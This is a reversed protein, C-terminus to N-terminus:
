KTWKLYASALFFSHAVYLKALKQIREEMEKHSFQPKSIVDNFDEFNKFAAREVELDDSDYGRDLYRKSSGNLRVNEQGNRNVIRKLGNDRRGIGRDMIKYSAVIKDGGPAKGQTNYDRQRSSSVKEGSIKSSYLEHTVGREIVSGRSSNLNSKAINNSTRGSRSKGQSKSVSCEDSEPGLSHSKHKLLRDERVNEVFNSGKGDHENKFGKIPKGRVKSRSSGERSAEFGDDKEHGKEGVRQFKKDGEGGEMRLKRSVGKERIKYKQTTAASGGHEKGRVTRASEMAKLYEDFSPKFELDKPLLAESVLGANSGGGDLSASVPGFNLKRVHFVRFKASIRSNLANGFFPRASIPVAYSSFSNGGCHLASASNGNIELGVIVGM